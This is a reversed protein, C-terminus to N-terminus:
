ISRARNVGFHFCAHHLVRSIQSAVIAALMTRTHYRPKGNTASREAAREAKVAELM